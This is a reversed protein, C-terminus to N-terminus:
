KQTCVNIPVRPLVTAEESLFHINTNYLDDDLTM